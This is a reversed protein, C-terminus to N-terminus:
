RVARMTEPMAAVVGGDDSQAPTDPSPVVKPGPMSSPMRQVPGDVRPYRPDIPDNLPPGPPLEDMATAFPRAGKAFDAKIAPPLIATFALMVRDVDPYTITRLMKEPLGTLESLLALTSPIEQTGWRIVHEFGPSSITIENIDRNQNDKIPMLLEVVWSGDRKLTNSPM